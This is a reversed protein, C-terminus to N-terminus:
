DNNKKVRWLAMPHASVRDLINKDEFLLEPRYNKNGFEKVFEKEYDNFVFLEQLYTKIATIVADKKFRDNKNLMPKLQRNVDRDTVGDLIDLSIDTIDSDGGICNYFVACKRLMEKDDVIDSEILGYVDYIDRPKCRGILAALKSGYLECVNLVKVKVESEAVPTKIPKDNLPLVHKRDLFNIEVKINDRNGANNIYQFVASDLAFYRKSQPSLSYNKQFLATQLFNWLKEKDREMEEKSDGIYDLDIDVSLRPLERYFLNIATGGKLALKEKWESTFVFELIDALRMVKEVNDKIFNTEKAIKVVNKQSLNIM